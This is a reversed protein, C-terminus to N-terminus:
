QYWYTHAPQLGEVEVHVSHALEPSAQARGQRVIRKMGPDSAIQWRVGVARPEMGGGHLPDPALRTWLVVGTPTPDGSAVGLAFPNAKFAPTALLVREYPRLVSMGATGAIAALFERRNMM